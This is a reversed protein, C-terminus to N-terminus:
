SGELAFVLLSSGLPVSPPNGSAGQVVGGGGSGVALYVTGDLEYAIPHSRIGSGTQVRWVEEGTRADHLADARARHAQNIQIRREGLQAAQGLRRLFQLATRQQWKQFVWNGNPRMRCQRSKLPIVMGQASFLPTVDAVSIPILFEIVVGLIGM